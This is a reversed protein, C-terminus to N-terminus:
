KRGKFNNYMEDIESQSYTDGINKGEAKRQERLKILSAAYHIQLDITTATNLVDSPLMGYKEAM